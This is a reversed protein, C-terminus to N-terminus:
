CCIPCTERMMQRKSYHAYSISHLIVPHKAFGHPVILTSIKAAMRDPARVHILNLAGVGPHQIPPLRTSCVGRAVSEAALVCARFQAIRWLIGRPFDNKRERNKRGM